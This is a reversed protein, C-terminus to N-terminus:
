RQESAAWNSLDRLSRSVSSPYKGAMKLLLAFDVRDLELEDQAPITGRYYLTDLIAKEPTAMYFRDHYTFGFFLFPSIRSFEIAVGQYTLGRKKGVSTSLTVITCVTPSQLTIGHYNLAWECSIYAPPKLFCGVEEVSPLEYLFSNVYNGRNLRHILGKQLARSLFMGTYRTVKEADQKRFLAPLLKLRKLTAREEEM